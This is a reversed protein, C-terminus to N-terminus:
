WSIGLFVQIQVVLVTGSQTGSSPTRRIHNFLNQGVLDPVLVGVQVITLPLIQMGPHRRTDLGRVYLGESWVGASFLTTGTTPATPPPIRIPFNYKM